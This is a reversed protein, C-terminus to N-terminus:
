YLVGGEERERERLRQRYSEGESWGRWLEKPVKRMYPRDFRANCRTWSPSFVDPKGGSEGRLESYTCFDYSTAKIEGGKEELFTVTMHNKSRYRNPRCKVGANNLFSITGWFYVLRAVLTLSLGSQCGSLAGQRWTFITILETLSIVFITAM